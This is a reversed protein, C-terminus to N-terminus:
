IDEEVSDESATRIILGFGEPKINEVIAKLRAREEEDSIRRSIGIHEVNPMLVLYRGPLTIYSTVRAGKSGIPAKSVQVLLEQGEQIIEEIPMESRCRRPILGIPNDKEEDKFLPAYEDTDAKIDAVYLFAAKELGIDVFASQMGPLIKVVKGKYINGLLSADRKREVYFEVVQGGDLLGVRTEERTVNILIESGMGKG